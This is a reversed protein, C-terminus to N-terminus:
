EVIIQSFLGGWAYSPDGAVYFCPNLLSTQTNYRLPKCAFDCVQGGAAEVIAQAAATDWESTPALRPYFDAVGEAILCFKLSSGYGNYQVPTFHQELERQLIGDGAMGAGLGTGHRRSVLVDLGRGDTLRRTNLLQKNSGGPQVKFAGVGRVGWYVVGTVPVGVVGLIPEGHEILAINVTFEGNKDVFEKTGDLPDILWYRQWHRREDFTALAGEESMIPVDPLLGSLGRLLVEHAAVDAQTVPSQDAKVAVTIPQHYIDLIVESACEVLALLDDILHEYM